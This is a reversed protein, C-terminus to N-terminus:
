SPVGAASRRGAATYIRQLSPAISPGHGTTIVRPRSIITEFLTSFLRPGRDEEIFYGARKLDEYAQAQEKGVQEHEVFERISRRFSDSMHDWIFRFQGRAEDLFVAEIEQRNLKGDNEDLYDFYAACAIQLFYPFYGAIEMIRRAYGALPLGAEASPRTILDTTEKRTFARLFVNTFINFFPSDAIM